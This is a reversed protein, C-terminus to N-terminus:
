NRPFPAPWKKNDKDLEAWFIPLTNNPTRKMTIIAESKNFGLSYYPNIKILDEIILYSQMADQLSIEGIAQRSSIARDRIGEAIVRVGLNNILDYGDKMIRIVLLIFEGQCGKQAIFNDYCNKFQAGTGVFDDVFVVVSQQTTSIKDSFPSNLFNLNKLGRTQFSSKLDYIFSHGSKIRHDGPPIVPTFYYQKHSNILPAFERVLSNASKTYDKIIEYKKLLEFVIPRNQQDIRALLQSILDFLKTDGTLNSDHINWENENYINHIKRLESTTLNTM